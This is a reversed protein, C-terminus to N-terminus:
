KVGKESEILLAKAKDLIFFQTTIGVSLRVDVKARNRCRSSRVDSAGINNCYVHQM